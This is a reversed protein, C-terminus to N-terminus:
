PTRVSSMDWIAVRGPLSDYGVALREGNPSFALCSVQGPIGLRAAEKGTAADAFRLGRDKGPYALWKGDPSFSVPGSGPWSARQKGAAVDWLKLEARGAARSVDRSAFALAKGEPAYAVSYVAGVQEPLRLREKGTAREWLRVTKDYSGSAVTRGDPSWALCLVSGSHGQLSARKKGSAPDWLHIVCGRVRMSEFKVGNDTSALTKGDPAFTVVVIGSSTSVPRPRQGELAVGEQGTRADWLRVTQDYSGTALTRGDPAFAVSCINGRHGRLTRREKGTAVDWLKVVGDSSGTALTKGDPAFAVAHVYGHLKEFTVIPEQAPVPNGAYALVLL